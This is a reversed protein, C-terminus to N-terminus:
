IDYYDKGKLDTIDFDLEDDKLDYDYSLEKSVHPKPGPLPNKIFGSSRYGPDAEVLSIGTPAGKMKEEEKDVAKFNSETEKNKESKTENGLIPAGKVPLTEIDKVLDVSSSSLSVEKLDKEENDAETEKKTDKDTKSYIYKYKKDKDETDEETKYFRAQKAAEANSVEEVSKSFTLLEFAGFVSIFLYFINLLYGYESTNFNVFTFVSIFDIVIVAFLGKDWENRIFSFVLVAALVFIALGEIRGEMPILFSLALGKPEFSFIYNLVNDMNSLGNNYIIYLFGFLSVAFSLVYVGMQIFRNQFITEINKRGNLLLASVSLVLLSIGLIDWMAIFGSSVGLAVLYLMHYGDIIGGKKNVDIVIVLYFLYAVYLFTLLTDPAINVVAEISYPVFAVLFAFLIGYRMGAGKKLLLYGLIMIGTQLLINFIYIPYASANIGCLIKCIGAYVNIAFANGPLVVADGLAYNLFVNDIEEGFLSTIYMVRLFVMLIVVVAFGILEYSKPIVPISKIQYKEPIRPVLFKFAMVLVAAAIFVIGYRILMPVIASDASAPALSISHLGIACFFILAFIVYLIYHYINKKTVM